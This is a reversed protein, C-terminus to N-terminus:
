LVSRFAPPEGHRFFFTNSPHGAILVYGAFRTEIGALAGGYTAGSGAGVYAIREGDIEGRAWFMSPGGCTSWWNSRWGATRRPTSTSGRARGTPAGGPCTSRYRRLGWAPWSSLRTSSARAAAGGRNVRCGPLVGVSSGHVPKTM